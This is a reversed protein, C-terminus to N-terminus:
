ACRQLAAGGRLTRSLAGLREQQALVGVRHAVPRTREVLVLLQHVPVRAQVAPEDPLPAVVADPRRGRVARGVVRVAAVEPLDHVVAVEHHVPHHEAVADRGGTEMLELRDHLGKAEGEVVTVVPRHFDGIQPVRRVGGVQAEAPADLVVAPGHVGPLQLHGDDRGCPDARTGSGRISTDPSDSVHSVTSATRAAPVAHASSPCTTAVAWSSREARRVVGATRGGASQRCLSPVSVSPTASNM